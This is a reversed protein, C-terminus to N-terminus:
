KCKIWEQQDQADRAHLLIEALELSLLTSYLDRSENRLASLLELHMPQPHATDTIEKEGDSGILICKRDRVELVGKTGAIRLRDDGHTPAAPPRLYDAHVIGTAGGELEFLASCHDEMSGYAPQSLNGGRASVRHFPLDTTFRIADIAHSAVWLMLGGFLTRDSYWKPREGFRYSKQATALIPQGILGSRVADRAARFERRSRFDFETLVRASGDRTLERIRNLQEWTTAIPKDSVIQRIGRELAAAIYNGNHGYIAGVSLVDPKYDDLLKIPDDYIKLDGAFEAIRSSGNDDAGSPAWAIPAEIGMGSEKPLPRLYHHGYGGIFALRM